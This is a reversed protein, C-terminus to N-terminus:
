NNKKVDKQLEDIEKQQSIVYLTLEEIKEMRRKQTDGLHLGNRDIEAASPINPLHNNQQIFKEVQYLAPLKYDKDFVYDAWGTEVVVEQSRINGLVSLKYTPNNTGIGVNGTNNKYINTGDTDWYNTGAGGANTKLESWGADKFIWLNLTEIDYVLLGEAANVIATREATTMRPLLLSKTTSKIDLMTSPHPACDDENISVSQAKLTVSIFSILSIFILSKM